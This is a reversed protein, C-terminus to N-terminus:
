GAWRAIRGSATLVASAPPSSPHPARRSRVLSAATPRQGSGCVVVSGTV